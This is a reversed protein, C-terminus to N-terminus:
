VHLWSRLDFGFWVPFRFMLRKCSCSRTVEKYRCTLYVCVIHSCKCPIMFFHVFGHVSTDLVYIAYQSQEVRNYSWM